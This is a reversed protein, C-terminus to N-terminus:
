RQRVPSSMEICLYQIMQIKVLSMVSIFSMAVYKQTHDIKTYLIYVAALLCASHSDVLPFRFIQTEWEWDDHEIKGVQQLNTHNRFWIKHHLHFISIKPSILLYILPLLSLRYIWKHSFLRFHCQYHFSEEKIM